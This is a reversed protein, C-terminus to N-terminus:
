PASGSERFRHQGNMRSILAVVPGERRQDWKEADMTWYCKPRLGAPWCVLERWLLVTGKLAIRGRQEAGHPWSFEHEM